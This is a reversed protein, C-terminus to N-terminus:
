RSDDMQTCRKGSLLRHATHLLEQVHLPKPRVADAEMAQAIPLYQGFAAGSVVIIKVHRLFRRFHQLLEIGERNPMVLDTVLLDVREEDAVRMADLGDAAELVSYGAEEFSRRLLARIACDDDVILVRRRM